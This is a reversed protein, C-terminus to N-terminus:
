GLLRDLLLWVLAFAAVYLMLHLVIVAAYVVAKFGVEAAKWM